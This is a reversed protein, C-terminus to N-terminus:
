LHRVPGQTQKLRQIFMRLNKNLVPEVKICEEMAAKFDPPRIDELLLKIMDKPNDNM